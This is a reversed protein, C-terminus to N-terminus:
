SSTQITAWKETAYIYEINDITTITKDCRELM